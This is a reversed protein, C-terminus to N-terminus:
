LVVNLTLAFPVDSSPLAIQRWGCPLVIRRKAWSVLEPHECCICFLFRRTDLGLQKHKTEVSIIALILTKVIYLLNTTAIKAVM